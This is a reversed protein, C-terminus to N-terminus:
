MKDAVMRQRAVRINTYPVQMKNAIEGDTWGTAEKILMLARDREANVRQQRAGIPKELKEKEKAAKKDDFRSLAELKLKSYEEKPFPYQNEFQGQPFSEKVKNYSKMRTTRFIDFMLNKSERNYFKFFGRDFSVVPHKEGDGLMDHHIVHSKRFVNILFESRGVAIEERLVFFDPLVLVFIHNLQGCENFFDLMDNQMETMAKAAVLGERAEDYQFISFPPKARAIELLKAHDFVVHDLAFANKNLERKKLMYALFACVTLGLVSKGVRVMRNGSVIIVFDWDHKINWILSMLAEALMKDIVFEQDNWNFHIYSM